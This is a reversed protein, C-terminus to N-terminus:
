ENVLQVYSPALKKIGVGPFAVSIQNKQVDIITGVGFKKHKVRDALQFNNESKPTFTESKKVKAYKLSQNFTRHKFKPSSVNNHVHVNSSAYGREQFDINEKPLEEIFRSPIEPQTRGFITRSNAYTLFLRKQARTVGVYCIRREEEMQTEDDFSRIHPFIGDEMGPMFVVPFELGKANHLTM